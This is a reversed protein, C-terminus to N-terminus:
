QPISINRHPQRRRLEADHRGIWAVKRNVRSQLPAASVMGRQEAYRKLWTTRQEDTIPLKLTSYIFQALDKVIWRTRTFFGPLRKVRAADILRVDVAPGDIRVFFHCLYLDRHHLGAGHLRAALDATASLLLDFNTGAEILKDAAQYGALDDFIVFSRRDPLTGWGILEATPIRASRLADHGRSEDDAPTTAGRSPQYRKVHWRIRRGDALAADLTCNERDDLTRWPKISPHGFISDADIGLERLIPQYQQAVRIAPRPQGLM